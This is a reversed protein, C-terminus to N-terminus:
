VAWWTISLDMKYGLGAAILEGAKTILAGFIIGIIGGLITLFIAEFLFQGLIYGNKAGVSKKLGIEFTRETVAVYMVNMIGVGGVILSISTLALLLANLAFFVKDLIELFEIISSVAFDDDEPKDIDHLERMKDEAQAITLDLKNMDKIKYIAEQIYDIGMIKKQLTEIPLYIFDDFNMMGMVTGRSKLTGIVKFTKGNIKINKGVAESEGFYYDKIASGLVAVQALSKDEEDTFMRGDVIQTQQDAETVGATVGLLMAQKRKEEYTSQAQTLQLAYWPGLNDLKAVKEADELKYTTIVTGGAQGTANAESTKSVKPVKVEIAIIDSGFTTVQSTVYNKVGTGFSLVLIVSAVGIVIGLLSLLTRALNSRLNKFALKLSILISHM